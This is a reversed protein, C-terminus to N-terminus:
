NGGKGSMWIYMRVIIALLVALFFMELIPYSLEATM